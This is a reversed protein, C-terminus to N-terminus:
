QPLYVRSEVWCYIYLVRNSLILLLIAGTLDLQLAAHIAEADSFGVKLSTWVYHKLHSPLLVDQQYLMSPIHTCTREGGNQRASLYM